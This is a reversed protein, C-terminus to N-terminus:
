AEPLEYVPPAPILIELPVIELVPTSLKLERVPIIDNVEESTVVANPYVGAVSWTNTADPVIGFPATTPNFKSPVTDTIDPVAPVGPVVTTNLPASLASITFATYADSVLVTTIAYLSEVAIPTYATTPLTSGIVCIIVNPVGTNTREPM